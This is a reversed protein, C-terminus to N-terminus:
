ELIDRQIPPPFAMFAEAVLIPTVTSIFFHGLGSYLEFNTNSSM